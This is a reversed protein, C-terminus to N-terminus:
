DIDNKIQNGYFKMEKSRIFGIAVHPIFVAMGKKVYSRLIIFSMETNM